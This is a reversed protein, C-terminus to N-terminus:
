AQQRHQFESRLGAIRAEIAAKADGQDKDAKAQLAKVKAQMEAEARKSELRDKELTNEIRVRLRDIKAQVKAKLDSRVKAHEAKLQDLEARHAAAKRASRANEAESRVMRFVVGGLAEMCTDVPTVWEEDVEAVVAYKGPILTASVDSLFDTDFDATYLDRIFGFLAGTGMGIALGAPGGLIGIMSGLTTGAVIGVPFVDDVREKSVTGDANKKIVALSTVEISGERDLASLSRVGEYAAKEDNFVIALIKNM